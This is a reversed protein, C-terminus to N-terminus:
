ASYAGPASAKCIIEYDTYKETGDVRTCPNCVSINLINEPASYYETLDSDQM